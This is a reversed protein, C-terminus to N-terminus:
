LYNNTYSKLQSMENMWMKNLSKRARSHGPEM